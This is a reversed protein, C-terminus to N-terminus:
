IHTWTKRLVIYDVNNRSVGYERALDARAVGAAAKERIERVQEPTLRATNIAEGRRVKEPHTHVGHTSGRALREPHQRSYHDDGRSVKEPHTVTGHREGRAVREPRTRPAHTEGHAHRGKARMDALNDAATGLFLHDPRVCLRNDCHHCVFLGPAPAGFVIIWAIRQASHNSGGVCFAGYGQPFRGATWLWCPGLEPCHAPVPGAKDVRSWFRAIQKPTLDPITRYLRSM